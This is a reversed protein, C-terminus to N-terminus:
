TRGLWALWGDARAAWLCCGRGHWFFKGPGHFEVHRGSKWAWAARRETATTAKRVDVMVSALYARCFDHM